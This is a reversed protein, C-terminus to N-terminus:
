DINDIPRNNRIKDMLAPSKTIRILRDKLSQEDFLNFFLKKMSEEIVFLTLNLEFIVFLITSM